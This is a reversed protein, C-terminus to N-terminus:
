VSYITPLTLHTYSVPVIVTVLSIPELVVTGAKALAEKLGIAGATRFAMDSSDVPHFKGDYAEVQVDVVPFGHVGGTAMAEFIGKEVAPIYNRPISGGVIRDVFSTGEGRGTPSVRLQCVAFQGHGGSQKKLKGEAETTKAITERYPIRVEETSVNVGFKRSLRELAVAIHTDGTGRLITQGSDASRDIVLTPSDRICM